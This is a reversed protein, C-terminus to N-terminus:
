KIFIMFYLLQTKNWKKEASSGASAKNPPKQTQKDEDCLANKVISFKRHDNVMSKELAEVINTNIGQQIIKKVMIEQIRVNKKPAIDRGGKKVKPVPKKRRKEPGKVHKKMGQVM